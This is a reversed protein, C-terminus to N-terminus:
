RRRRLDPRRGRRRPEALDGTGHGETQRALGCAIACFGVVTGLVAGALVDGPYHVGDYVRSFGILAALALLAPAARPAFYALLTAGAFATAAHGAPFSSSHVPYLPTIQPHAQFPRPRSVLDKVGFSAADAAFTVFATLAGLGIARLLGYGLWLGIAVGLAAWVAGLREIDGLWVMPDNM